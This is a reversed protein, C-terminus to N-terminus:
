SAVQEKSWWCRVGHNRELEELPPEEQCRDFAHVCRPGFKCGVPLEQLTPVAGPIAQLRERRTGSRDFRPLSSLLGQTYPHLPNSFLTDTAAHEVIRGAYMIAVEHAVEAIVGLDHSILVLALGLRQLLEELLALIQAQITVDLATTPEDAFIVEPNCSIAMAIMVRQRMGGSLQHPYDKSRQRPSPIGVLNLLEVTRNQAESKSTRLHLRLMEQIQDGITFVPNLSTMPEQFIMAIRKGRYSRMESEPLALLDKGNFLVRGSMIKGPPSSVLRMVSLATVTKGCGSEGVLGLVKGKRVSFSVDDVARLVGEPTHFQTILHEVSLVTKEVPTTPLATM